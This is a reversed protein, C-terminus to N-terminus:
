DKKPVKRSKKKGSVSYATTAGKLPKSKPTGHRVASVVTWGNRGTVMGDRVGVFASSEGETFTFSRTEPLGNKVGAVEVDWTM